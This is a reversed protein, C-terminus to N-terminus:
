RGKPDLQKVYVKTFDIIQGSSEISEAPSKKACAAAVVASAAESITGATFNYKTGNFEYYGVSSSNVCIRIMGTGCINGYDTCDYLAAEVAKKCSSFSVAIGLLIVPILLVRLKTKM